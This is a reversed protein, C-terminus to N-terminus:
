ASNAGNKNNEGVKLYNAINPLEQESLIGSFVIKIIADRQGSFSKRKSSFYSLFITGYLLNSIVSTIQEVPMRRIRGAEILKEMLEHWPKINKLRHIVYTPTKRDRFEAREQILLEVIERNDDFFSLYSDIAIVIKTIPDNVEEAASSIAENLLTMGRDVAALFLEEKTSFYRYITGKGVGLEDAIIQVDTGPYGFEAFTKTAQVLIEERRQLVLSDNKPRGRKSLVQM